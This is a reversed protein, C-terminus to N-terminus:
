SLLDGWAVRVYSAKRYGGYSSEVVDWPDPKGHFVIVSTGKPFSARQFWFPRLRRLRVFLRRPFITRLANLHPVALSNTEHKFSRALGDPFTAAGPMESFIWDQDGHMGGIIRDKEKAFNEFLNTCAEPTFSFISSNFGEHGAFGKCIIMPQEFEFFRDLSDVIVVDLDLYLVRSNEPLVGRKFLILKNWWGHLGNVPLPLAEIGSDLGDASDTLCVFRYEGTLNQSVMHFLRNVYEPGYKEGWKVCAVIRAKPM